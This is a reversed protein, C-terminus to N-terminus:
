DLDVLEDGTALIAVIPRRHVRVVAVSLSALLGSDAPRLVRGPELVTEGAKIDEGPFRVSTHPAVAKLIEVSGDHERTDEVRVVADAGAPMPSGTMIKTASGSTITISPVTGAGVTEVVSLRIPHHEGAAAVDDSRVAYGDMAANTFPPIDRSARVPESLVRGHAQPLAVTDPGLVSIERTVTQLADHVSIM